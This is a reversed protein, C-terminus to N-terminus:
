AKREDICEQCRCNKVNPNHVKWVRGGSRKRILSANLKANLTRIVEPTLTEGCHPCTLNRRAEIQQQSMWFKNM